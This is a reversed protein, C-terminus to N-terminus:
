LEKPKFSNTTDLVFYYSSSFSGIIVPSIRFYGVNNIPGSNMISSYYSQCGYNYHGLPAATQSNM